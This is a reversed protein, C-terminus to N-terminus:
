LIPYHGTTFMRGTAALFGMIATAFGIISLIATMNGKWWRMYRGHLIISYILWTSLGLIQTPDWGFYSGWIIRTRFMGAIMQITFFIFGVAIAKYIIEDLLEEAPFLQLVSFDTRNETKKRKKILFIISAGFSLAFAGYGFFCPIVHYNYFNGQLVEPVPAIKSDSSPLMSAYVLIFAALPIVITGMTKNQLKFELILYALVIAWTILSLSEYLTVIHLHGLGMRYTESWRLLFALTHLLFALMTLGTACKAAKPAKLFPNSFYLAAGAIYFFSAVSLITQNLM